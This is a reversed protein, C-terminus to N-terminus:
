IDQEKFTGQGPATDTMICAGGFGGAVRKSTTPLLKDEKSAGASSRLKIVWKMWSVVGANVLVVRQQRGRKTRGLLLICVPRAGEASFHLDVIHLSLAKSIRARLLLAGAGIEGHHLWLRGALRSLDVGSGSSVSNGARQAAQHGVRRHGELFDEISPGACVEASRVGPVFKVTSNQRSSM